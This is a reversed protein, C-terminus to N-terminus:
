ELIGLKRWDSCIKTVDAKAQEEQVEYEELLAAVIEPEEKGAEIQKWIFASTENLSIIGSFSDTSSAIPVLIIDEGLNRMAFEQKLRM